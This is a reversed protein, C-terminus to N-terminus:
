FDNSMDVVVMDVVVMDVGDQQRTPNIRPIGGLLLLFCRLSEEVSKCKCHNSKCQGRFPANGFEFVCM